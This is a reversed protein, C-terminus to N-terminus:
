NSEKQQEASSIQYKNQDSMAGVAKTVAMIVLEGRLHDPLDVNLSTAGDRISTPKRIYELDVTSLTTYSDGKLYLKDDRIGVRPELFHVNFGYSSFVSINEDGVYINRFDAGTVNPYNTRTVNSSSDWYYLFGTTGTPLDVYYDFGGLNAGTSATLSSHGLLYRLESIKRQNDPLGFFKSEVLEFQSDDLYARIEEDELGAADDAVKEDYLIRFDSIVESITM